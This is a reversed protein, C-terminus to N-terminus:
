CCTSPALLKRNWLHAAVVLFNGLTIIPMEWYPGLLGDAVFTAFLVLSVGVVMGALVASHRHKRYGPVIAFLCFAVVFLALVYHTVHDNGMRAALTPLALALLPVAVCHVVCIVSAIIGLNDANAWGPKKASTQHQQSELDLTRM